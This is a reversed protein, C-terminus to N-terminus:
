LAEFGSRCPSDLEIQKFTINAHVSNVQAHKRSSRSTNQKSTGGERAETHKKKEILVNQRHKVVAEM